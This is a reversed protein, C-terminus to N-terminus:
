PVPLVASPRDSAKLSRHPVDSPQPQGTTSSASPIPRNNQRDCAPLEHIGAKAAHIPLRGSRIANQVASSTLATALAKITTSAETIASAAPGNQPPSIM